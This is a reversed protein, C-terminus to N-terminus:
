PTTPAGEGVFDRIGASLVEVTEQHHAPNSAAGPTRNVDYLVVKGDVIGYDFKGYHFGL